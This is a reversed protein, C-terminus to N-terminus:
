IREIKSKTNWRQLNRARYGPQRNVAGCWMISRWPILRQSPARLKSSNQLPNKSKIFFGCTRKREPRIVAPRGRPRSIEAFDWSMQNSIFLTFIWARPWIHRGLIKFFMFFEFIEYEVLFQGPYIRSSLSSMRPMPIMEEALKQRPLWTPPKGRRKVYLPFGRKQLNNYSIFHHGSFFQLTYM